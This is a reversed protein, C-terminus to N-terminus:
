AQPARAAMPRRGPPADPRPRARAPHAPRPGGAPQPLGAQKLRSQLRRNSRATLERDLLLGFREEFSLSASDPHQLQEELAAAMGPLRLTRLQDLTPHLWMPDGSRNQPPCPPACWAALTAPAGSPSLPRLRPRAPQRPREGQFFVELTRASPRAEVERKVLAGPVSCYAQEIRIHLNLAVRAKFWAAPASPASPLPRLVPRELAEFQSRRAGPRKQFPRANLRELLAGIAQDLEELSFFTRRRLCALVWREVLLVGAEAPAKDRPRAVRAPVAAAGDHRLMGAYARHIDPDYRHPRDVASKLHDPVVVEPVGGFYAFARLHSGIWDETGQSWTAECFTYRSAGLVAVFVQARRVEGTDRAVVEVTQGAQDVFLKEGARHHQRMVVDVRGLWVRYLEAFQSYQYGTEPYQEKYAQWLRMPTVGKCCLEVCVAAWIPLPRELGTVAAPEPFLRRELQAESLGEPLPWSLGAAALRGLYEAVASRALACSAAIQRNSLGAEFKLRVVAQIKHM